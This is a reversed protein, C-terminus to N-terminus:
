FVKQQPKVLVRVILQVEQQEKLNKKMKDSYIFPTLLLESKFLNRIWKYILM